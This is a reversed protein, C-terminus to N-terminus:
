KKSAVCEGADPFLEWDTAQQDEDVSGPSLGSHILEGLNPDKRCLILGLYEHQRQYSAPPSAKRRVKQGNAMQEQAWAWTGLIAFNLTIHEAPKKVQVKVNATAVRTKGGLWGTGECTPCERPVQFLIEEGTGHCGTYLISGTPHSTVLNEANVLDFSILKFEGEHNKVLEAVTKSPDHNFDRGVVFKPKEDNMKTVM